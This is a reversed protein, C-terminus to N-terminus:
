AKAAAAFNAEVERWAVVNWFADVYDARRNQYKLYYAHEWVDLGLVPALGEGLPSDQNATSHVELAGGPQVCLWAWGSGFRKMAADTLRTKFADFSGFAQDIAAALPGAPAGGSRPGLNRWFMSHNAHGGVNNRVALRIQEPVAGLNKLLDEATKKQWVPFEALARNANDIYAQHHKTHHLEMTRADIHPELADYAYALPPLTFPQPPPPKGPAKASPEAALARSTLSGLGLLTAGAGLTKLAERRTLTTVPNM